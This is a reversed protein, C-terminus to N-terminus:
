LHKESSTLIFEARTIDNPLEYLGNALVSQANCPQACIHEPFRVFKPMAATSEGSITLHVQTGRALAHLTIKGDPLYLNKLTTVKNDLLQYFPIAGFVTAIDDEQFYISKTIMDIARGCNSGNPQWPTYNGNLLHIREQTQYTDPTVGYFFANLALFAKKWQRTKLYADHALWEALGIYMIDRDMPGLFPGVAINGEYYDMYNRFLPDDKEFLNAYAYGISGGICEFKRSIIEEPDGTVIQRPIFGNPEALKNITQNIDSKYQMAQERYYEANDISRSELLHAFKDLGFYSFADTFTTVHGVDGDTACAFPMLGYTLPKTGDHNLKRTADIEGIIWDAAAQMKPLYESLFDEDKSYRCYEAALALASGTSNAWRIATTGVAGKLSTFRGYPPTGGDQLKFIFDIAKKVPEFHGCKLLPMLMCMAEWVWVFHRESSGGQIPMLDSGNPFKILMQLAALQLESFARGLNNGPFELTTRNQPFANITDTIANARVTEVDIHQLQEQDTETLNEYDLLVAIHFHKDEGPQIVGTLKIVNHVGPLRQSPNVFYPKSCCFKKNYSEPSFTTETEWTCLFEGPVIKGISRNQYIISQDRILLNDCTLWKTNDWYFPVYHYDYIASEKVINTNIRVTADQAIDAENRVSGTIWLLSQTDSLRSCSYHLTYLLDWAFYDAKIIPAVKETFQLKSYNSDPIFAPEDFAFQIVITEHELLQQHTQDSTQDLGPLVRRRSAVLARDVYVLDRSHPPQIPCHVTIPRSRVEFPPAKSISDWSLSEISDYSLM